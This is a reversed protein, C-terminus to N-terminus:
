GTRQENLNHLYLIYWVCQVPLTYFNWDLLNTNREQRPGQGVRPMALSAGHRKTRQSYYSM